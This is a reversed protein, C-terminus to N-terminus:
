RAPPAAGSCRRRRRVGPLMEGHVGVAFLQDGGLDVPALALDRKSASKGCCVLRIAPPSRRRSAPLQGFGRAAASVSRSAASCSSNGATRRGSPPSKKLWFPRSNRGSVSTFAVVCCSIAACGNRPGSAASGDRRPMMVLREVASTPTSWPGPWARRCRRASPANRRCHEFGRRLALGVIQGPARQDGARRRPRSSIRRKMSTCASARSRRAPAPRLPSRRSGRRRRRDSCRVGSLPTRTRSVPGTGSDSSSNAVRASRAPSIPPAISAPTSSVRHSATRENRM